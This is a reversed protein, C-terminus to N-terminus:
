MSIRHRGLPEDKQALMIFLGKMASLFTWPSGQFNRVAQENHKGLLIIWQSAMPYSHSFLNLDWQAGMPFGISRWQSDMPNRHSCLTLLWQPDMPFGVSDINSYSSLGHPPWQSDMPFGNPIRRSDMQFKNPIWQSDMAMWWTTRSEHAALLSHHERTLLLLLIDGWGLVGGKFFYNNNRSNCSLSTKVEGNHPVWQSDLPVGSPTWLIDIHYYISIANPVGQSDL